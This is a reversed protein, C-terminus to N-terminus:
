AARKVERMALERRMRALGEHRIASVKPEAVGLKKGIARQPMERTYFMEVVGRSPEPLAATADAVVAHLRRADIAADHSPMYGPDGAAEIPLHTAETYHRRRCQDQMAGHVRRVAYAWFPVPNAFGDARVFRYKDACRMLAIAGEQILDDLEISPPFAGVIRRAVAGVRDLNSTVLRDRRERRAISTM